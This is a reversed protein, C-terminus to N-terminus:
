VLENSGLLNKVKDNLLKVIAIQKSISQITFLLRKLHRNSFEVRTYSYSHMKLWQQLVQYGGIRFELIEKPIPRIEFERNDGRLTISEGNSDIRFDTMKFDGNFQSFFHSYAEELLIDEDATHREFLALKEGLMAIDHFVERSQSIPIRPSAGSTAFLAPEFVDLYVDSCLIGYVYFIIKDPNEEGAATLFDHSINLHPTDDWDGRSRKYEPFYNCFVHANGRKSLDNDPLYWCFSVFRELSEGLDKPSPAVAIGLTRVDKYASVIEPRYRTGGGPARVLERLIRESILAPLNLMPRYSYKVAPADGRENLESQFANRVASSFKGSNPPRDQGRYWRDIVRAVNLRDDAIDASRRFLIPEDAHVFLSSPALKLGSCHREFIYKEESNNNKYLPWFTSYLQRNFDSRPRFVPNTEEVDFNEFHELMNEGADSDVELFANKEDLNFDAISAYHYRHAINASRDQHRAAVFLLRGQLAHFISSSRVGTRGDKDIDLIWFKDFNQVFWQRAYRYSPNEAFSSPLVFAVISNGSNRAKNGAWRLFKIFENQLQKQTNQRSSRSVEPPRFDNLLGQIISFNFGDSHSSSDSSPPNGMILTLPPRVFDRAVQQEMQFLNIQGNNSADELVDSLTNTLVVHVNQYDPAIKAIRYHALAYPAPLIEFGIINAEGGSRVSACLLKELFSGTGCCPDILKNGQNYISGNFEIGNIEEALAVTYAALEKPTYFAGYDFRTKPDFAALFREFLDHYDPAVIQEEGLEVHSLMLCCDEYWIGLTGSSVIEKRLLETLARFPKLDQMHPTEREGLWFEKMKKYREAPTLTEIGLVRHSYILGFILVQSVFASFVKKDRLLPDHHRRVVERLVTLINIAENETEDLGAGARLDALSEIEDALFRTRMACEAVLQQESIRRAALASFFKRFAEEILAIDSSIREKLPGTMSKESLVYTAYSADFPNFFVFELGDTLIVRYGLSLYKQVQDLHDKVCIRNKDSYAKAEVYGYIGLSQKDYFRWDPRGAHAQKRPEYVSSINDGFEGVLQSFYDNLVPRYSLEGTMEGVRRSEQHFSDLADLYKQTILRFSM